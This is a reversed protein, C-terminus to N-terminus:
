LLFYLCKKKMEWRKYKSFDITVSRPNFNYSVNLFCFLKLLTEEDPYKLCILVFIVKSKNKDDIACLSMLKYPSFSKFIIKFNFDLGYLKGKSNDFSKLLKNNSTLM